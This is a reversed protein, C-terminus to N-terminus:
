RWRQEGERPVHIVSLSCVECRKLPFNRCFRTDHVVSPEACSQRNFAAQLGPDSRLRKNIEVLDHAGALVAMFADYVQQVPTHTITKPASHVRARVPRCLHLGQLRIGLAAWTARPSFRYSLAPTTIKRMIM